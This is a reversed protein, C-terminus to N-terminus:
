QHHAGASLQRQGPIRRRVHEGPLPWQVAHWLDPLERGSRPQLPLKTITPRWANMFTGNTSTYVLNLNMMVQGTPLLLLSPQNDCFSAAPEPILNAATSSTSGGTRTQPCTSAAGEAEASILHRRAKASARTVLTPALLGITPSEPRIPKCWSTGTRCCAPGTDGAGEGGHSPFDPGATWSNTKPHYVATPAIPKYNVCANPDTSPGKFTCAAGSYFVTGDPRLM